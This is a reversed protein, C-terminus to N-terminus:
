EMWIGITYSITFFSKGLKRGWISAYILSSFDAYIAAVSLTFGRTAQVVYFLLSLRLRAYKEKFFQRKQLNKTHGNERM